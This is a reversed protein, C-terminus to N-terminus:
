SSSRRRGPSRGSTRPRCSRSGARPREDVWWAPFGVASVSPGPTSRPADTWPHRSGPTFSVVPAATWCTIERDGRTVNNWSFNHWSFPLRDVTIFAVIVCRVVLCRQRRGRRQRGRGEGGGGRGGGGRRGSVFVSQEPEFQQLYKNYAINCM